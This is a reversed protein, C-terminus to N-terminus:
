PEAGSGHGLTRSITEGARKISKILEPSPNEPLGRMPGIVGVMAALSAQADLVPVALANFGVVGEEPV